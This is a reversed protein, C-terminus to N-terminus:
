VLSEILTKGFSEPVLEAPRGAHECPRPNGSGSNYRSGTTVEISDALRAGLIGGVTKMESM